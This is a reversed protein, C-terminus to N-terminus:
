GTKNRADQRKGGLLRGIYELAEEHTNVEGAARAERAAELLEGIAPGPSLGFIDILDHGDILKAPVVKSEEECRQALVYKVLEAHARWNAMDLHPGRTALHDALSLFLIDIGAEGADRFFRYIARRSPLGYNSMQGPRLHNQILVEVLKIERTSFRLRELIDAAISAGQQAHGLFHACGNENVSKTQPKAIDHLLAALKLMTKRTSGSSVEQAFHEGLAASWPVATLVVDGAAHQWTGLRLLFGAAGVTKISHEYVDWFHVPPQGVGRAQALEPILATLLGLESLYALIEGAQPLDLMRLLEERNREGAVSAILHSSQRILTETEGDISFGLEAALRVARLLRAADSKFAMEGVARIIGQGLDDRGGFPDILRESSIAIEEGKESAAITILEPILQGLEMAMADITFDRGALDQEITGKLTSFDLEWRAKGTAGNGFLVVRGVGNSEDLPVYKGGFAAALRRAIERADAAVAIDIDATDRGLLADRVFGGVLYSQIGEEGLFHGVRTLLRLAGPKVLMKLEEMVQQYMVLSYGLFPSNIM